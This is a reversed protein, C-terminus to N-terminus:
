PHILLHVSIPLIYINDPFYQKTSAALLFHCCAKEADVLLSSNPNKKELILIQKIQRTTTIYLGVLFKNQDISKNISQREIAKRNGDPCNMRETLKHCLTYAVWYACNGWVKKKLSLHIRLVFAFICAIAIHIPYNHLLGRMDQANVIVPSVTRGTETCYKIGELSAKGRHIARPAWNCTGDDIMLM